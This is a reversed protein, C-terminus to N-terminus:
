YHNAKKFKDIALHEILEKDNKALKYNNKSKNIKDVFKEFGKIARHKDSEFLWGLDVRNQTPLTSWYNVQERIESDSQDQYSKTM